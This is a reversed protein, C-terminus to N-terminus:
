RVASAKASFRRPDFASLDVSTARGNVILEAMALGTAPGNLIGWCSHGTAVYVGQLGPVKGILPVGDPSQPLHCAQTAELTAEGKALCSALSGAIGWINDALEASVPVSGPLPLDQPQIEQPEGCCYVTGDPRPYLEPDVSRGSRFKYDTFIMHNTVPVAPRLSISHYKTAGITPLLPRSSDAGGWSASDNSWPGLALVVCTAPVIRMGDVEVGTVERNPGLVLGTVTGHQLQDTSGCAAEMLANTLKFPHVQATSDTDGLEGVASIHGDLWAPAQPKSGKHQNNGAQAATESGKVQLTHTRRYGINDAGFREALQAHLAFSKRSLPGVPSSDNWDLALFGGAKGSAACAVSEREIVTPALGMESLYYATAAGIIGGGCIVVKAQPAPQM